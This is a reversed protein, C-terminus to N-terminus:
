DEGEWAIQIPGLEEAQGTAVTQLRAHMYPAAAQACERRERRDPATEMLELLVDLPSLGRAFARERAEANLKNAKGPKRGAGPRRGGRAM